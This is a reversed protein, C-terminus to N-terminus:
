DTIKYSLYVTDTTSGATKTISLVEGQNGSLSFITGAGLYEASSTTSNQTVRLSTPALADTIPGLYLVRAGFKIETNSELQGKTMLATIVVRFGSGPDVNFLEGSSGSLAQNGLSIASEVGGPAGIVTIEGCPGFDRSM